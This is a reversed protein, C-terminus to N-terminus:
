QELAMSGVMIVISEDESDLSELISKRWYTTQAM